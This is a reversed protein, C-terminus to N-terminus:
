TAIPDETDANGQLKKAGGENDDVWCSVSGAHKDVPMQLFYIGVDGAGIRLPVRLSSTPQEAYWYSRDDKSGKPPHVTIWGSGYFISPPLPNVLDGASVCFPEVERFSDVEAPRSKLRMPPVEFAPNLVLRASDEEAEPQQEANDPRNGLGGFPVAQGGKAAKENVEGIVTVEPVTYSYGLAASWSNCIQSMLYSILM